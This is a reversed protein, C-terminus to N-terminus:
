TGSACRRLQLRRWALGPPDFKAPLIGRSVVVPPPHLKVSSCHRPSFFCASSRPKSNRLEGNEISATSNSVRTPTAAHFTAEPSTLLSGSTRASTLFRGVSSRKSLMLGSTSISAATSRTCCTVAALEGAICKAHMDTDELAPQVSGSRRIEGATRNNPQAIPDNRCSKNRGPPRWKPCRHRPLVRSM